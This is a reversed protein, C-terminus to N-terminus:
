ALEKGVVKVFPRYASRIQKMCFYIACIDILIDLFSGTVFMEATSIALPVNIAVTILNVAVLLGQVVYFAMMQRLRVNGTFRKVVLVLAYLIMA